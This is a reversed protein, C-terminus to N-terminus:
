TFDSLVLKGSLSARASLLDDWQETGTWFVRKLEAMAEPNALALMQALTALGDDLSEVDEFLRSYLGNRECWEADRWDADVAMASFAALGIKREIVPGVVFPGI